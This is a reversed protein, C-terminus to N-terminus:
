AGAEKRLEILQRIARKRVPTARGWEIIEDLTRLCGTCLGGAAREEAAGLSPDMKCISICPSPVEDEDLMEIAANAISWVM